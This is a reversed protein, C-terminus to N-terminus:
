LRRTDLWKGFSEGDGVFVAESGSRLLAGSHDLLGSFKQVLSHGVYSGALTTREAFGAFAM